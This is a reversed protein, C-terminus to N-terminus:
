SLVLVNEDDVIPIRGETSRHDQLMPIQYTVASHPALLTRFTQNTTADPTLLDQSQLKEFERGGVGYLWWLYGGHALADYAIETPATPRNENSSNKATLVDM